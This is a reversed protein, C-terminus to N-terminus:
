GASPFTVHTALALGETQVADVASTWAARIAWDGLALTKAQMRLNPNIVGDIELTPRAFGVDAGSGPSCPVFSFMGDVSDNPTAGLYLRHTRKNEGWGYMPRITAHM